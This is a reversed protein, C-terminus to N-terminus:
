ARSGKKPAAFKTRVSDAELFKGLAEGEEEVRDRVESSVTGFPEVRISLRNAKKESKWIGKVSGDVLVVPSLWGQPRYVRQHHKREVLHGKDKHGLLFSDFFPLLRVLPRKIKARELTPLDDRLIWAIRGGVNVAVLEQESRKWIAHASAATVYTWWAFDAV